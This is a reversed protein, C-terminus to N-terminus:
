CPWVVWGKAHKAKLHNSILIKSLRTGRDFRPKGVLKPRWRLPCRRQICNILSQVEILGNLPLGVWLLYFVAFHTADEPAENLQEFDASFADSSLVQDPRATPVVVTRGLREYVYASRQHYIVSLSLVTWDDVISLEAYPLDSLRQIEM